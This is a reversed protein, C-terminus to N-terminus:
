PSPILSLPWPSLNKEGAPVRTLLAPTKKMANFAFTRKGALFFSMILPNLGTIVTAPKVNLLALNMSLLKILAKISFAQQVRIANGVFMPWQLWKRLHPEMTVMATM